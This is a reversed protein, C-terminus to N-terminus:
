PQKEFIDVLDDMGRQTTVVVVSDGSMFVDEGRPSICEGKRLISAILVGRKIRLNRIPIGICKADPRIAFELAEVRGEMLSYLTVVNNGRANDMARVYQLINQATINKPQIIDNMGITSLLHLSWDENVKTIIKGECVSRAYLSAVMNYEDSGTLAIFAGAAAIGEEDLIDPAVGDAWVVSAKPLEAKLERCRKEDKEIIKARVGIDLLYRVLYVAIRSGGFIIVDKVRRRFIGVEKFFDYVEQPSGGVTIMDGAEIVFNGDPIFVKGARAVACILIRARYNPHIREIPLGALPNGPTVLFEVLEASWKSFPEVKTASPFRLLRSIEEATIREPNILMSLGLEDKLFAIQGAYEPNRVRAITHQVGMKKAVICALLNTEDANTVAIFLDATSVEANKQVELTACNGQVAMVDLTSIALDIRDADTDLLIIDHKEKSLKDALIYGTRGVGAIVIKM